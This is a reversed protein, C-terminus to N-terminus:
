QSYSVALRCLLTVDASAQRHYAIEVPVPPEYSTHIMGPVVSAHLTGPVYLLLALYKTGQTYYTHAVVVDSSSYRHGIDM